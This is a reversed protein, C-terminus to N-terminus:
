FYNSFLNSFLKQSYKKETYFKQSNTNIFKLSIWESLFNEDNYPSNNSFEPNYYVNADSRM